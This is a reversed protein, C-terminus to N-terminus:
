NQNQRDSDFNQNAISFSIKAFFGKFKEFLYLFGTNLDTNRNQFWFESALISIGIGFNFTVTWRRCWFRFRVELKSMLIKICNQHSKTPIEIEDFTFSWFQFRFESISTAVLIKSCWFMSIDFKSKRLHFIIVKTSDSWSPPRTKEDRTWLNIGLPYKWGHTCARKLCIKELYFHRRFYRLFKNQKLPNSYFTIICINKKDFIWWNLVSLLDANGSFFSGREWLATLPYCYYQSINDGIAIRHTQNIINFCHTNPTFTLINFKQM